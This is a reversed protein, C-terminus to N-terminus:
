VGREVLRKLSAAMVDSTQASVTYVLAERYVRQADHFVSNAAGSSTVVGAHSCRAALDIAWARIRLREATPLDQNQAADRCRELEGDLAEWASRVFDAGKKEFNTWVIDLGARACGLAFWAQLTVNIMDNNQIWGDPKIFAVDEDKLLWGSLEASMTQPSEMAALRMPGEFRISGGGEVETDLFPVVGFVAEGGPLTAGILFSHYFSHGTVWPVTGNLLYGGSVPTATMMPKGPRRLQSFGIGCLFEGDGMRPLLRAKLEENDGKAIMSVASQHQTQLFALSGSARAVSEQFCRFAGEDLGPGGFESPRRMAMMGRECLGGLAERLASVDADIENAKPRVEAALYEEASSLIEAASSM